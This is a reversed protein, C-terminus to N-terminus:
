TETSPIKEDTDCIPMNKKLKGMEPTSPLLSLPRGLFFQAIKDTVSQIVHSDPQTSCLCCMPPM